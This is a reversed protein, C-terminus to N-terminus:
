AERRDMREGVGNKSGGCFGDRKFDWLSPLSGLSYQVERDQRSKPSKKGDLPHSNDHDLQVSSKPLSPHLLSILRQYAVRPRLPPPISSLARSICVTYTVRM